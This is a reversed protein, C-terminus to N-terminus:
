SSIHKDPSSRCSHRQKSRFRESERALSLGLIGCPDSKRVEGIQLNLTLSASVLDLSRDLGRDVLGVLWLQNQGSSIQNVIRHRRILSEHSM